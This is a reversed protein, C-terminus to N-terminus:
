WAWKAPRPWGFILPSDPVVPAAERPAVTAGGEATM